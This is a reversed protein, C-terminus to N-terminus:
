RRLLRQELHQPPQAHRGQPLRDHGVHVPHQDADDASLQAAVEGLSAPRRAGRGARDWGASGIIDVERLEPCGPRVEDIMAEYDSTKFAPAAVLHGIGAQRLVFELEHTRYAPNITVLIAGIARSAYQLLM